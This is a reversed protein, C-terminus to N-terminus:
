MTDFYYNVREQPSLYDYIAMPLDAPNLAKSINVDREDRLDLIIAEERPTHEDYLILTPRLPNSSYVKIVLGVAGNSLSVVCGPPYVGMFRIFGQLLDPRFRARQKAYMVSLAEHPTVAGVSNLPNCLNEYYNVIGILQALDSTQDSRLGQPYGSGDASEHHQLIVDLIRQDLGMRKGIALGLECHQRRVADEARTLHGRKNVVKAPVRSLGIDHLMAGLGVAVIDDGSYDMERCFILSLISVNLAHSHISLNGHKGSILQLAIEPASAMSEIMNNVLGSARDLCQTPNSNVLKVVERSTRSANVFATEVLEIQKRYARLQAVRESKLAMEEDLTPEEIVSPREDSVVPAADKAQEGSAPNADSRAPDWRISDIGLKRIIDIQRRDKIKFSNFTFPHQTWGGDLHIYLGVVLQDVPIVHTREPMSKPLLSLESNFFYGPLVRVCTSRHTTITCIGMAVRSIAAFVDGGPSRGFDTVRHTSRAAAAAWGIM